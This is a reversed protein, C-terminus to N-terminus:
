PRTRGFSPWRRGGLAKIENALRRKEAILEDKQEGVALNVDRDIQEIRDGLDRRKLM